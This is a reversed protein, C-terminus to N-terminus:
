SNHLVEVTDSSTQNTVCNYLNGVKKGFPTTGQVYILWNNLWSWSEHPQNSILPFIITIFISHNTSYSM